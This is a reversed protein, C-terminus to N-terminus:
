STLEKHFHFYRIQLQRSVLDCSWIRTFTGVLYSKSNLFFYICSIIKSNGCQMQARDLFNRAILFIASLAIEYTTGCVIACLYLIMKIKQELNLIEHSFPKSSKSNKLFTMTSILERVEMKYPFLLLFVKKQISFHIRFFDM